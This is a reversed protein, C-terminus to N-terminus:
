QRSRREEIIIGYLRSKVFARVKEDGPALEKMRDMVPNGALSEISFEGSMIRDVLQTAASMDDIYAKPGPKDM